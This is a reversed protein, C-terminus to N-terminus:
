WVIRFDGANALARDLVNMDPNVERRHKLFLRAPRDPDGETEFTAQGIGEDAFVDFLAQLAAKVDSDSHVGSVRVMSSALDAM